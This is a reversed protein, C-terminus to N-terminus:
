IKPNSRTRCKTSTLSLVEGQQHELNPCNHKSPIFACLLFLLFKLVNMKADMWRKAICINDGAKYVQKSREYTEKQLPDKQHCTVRTLMLKRKRM